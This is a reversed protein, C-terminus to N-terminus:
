DTYAGVKVGVGYAIGQRRMIYITRRNEMVDM